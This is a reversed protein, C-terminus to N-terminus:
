SPLARPLFIYFSPHSRHNYLLPHSPQEPSPLHLTSPSHCPPFPLISPASSQLQLHLSTPSSAVLYILSLLSPSYSSILFQLHLRHTHYSWLFQSFFTASLLVLLSLPPFLDNMPSPLVCLSSLPPTPPQSFSLHPPSYSSLSQLHQFKSLYPIHPESSCSYFFHYSRYTAPLSRQFSTLLSQVVAILEVLSSPTSLSWLLTM